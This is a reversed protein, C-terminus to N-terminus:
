ATCEEGYTEAQLAGVWRGTRVQKLQQHSTRGAARGEQVRVGALTEQLVCLLGESLPLMEEM